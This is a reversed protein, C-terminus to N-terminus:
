QPSGGGGSTGVGGSTTTIDVPQKVQGRNYRDVSQAARRGYGGEIPEGAYEPDPDVVQQEINWRHTEGYGLDVPTCGALLGAPVLLIMVRRMM